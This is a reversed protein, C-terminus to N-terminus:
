IIKDIEAAMHIDKETITHNQDHTCLFIEVTTYDIIIKPHHNYKEALYAVTNCFLIADSYKKFTFKKFLTNNSEIWNM